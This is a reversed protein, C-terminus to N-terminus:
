SFIWGARESGLCEFSIEKIIGQDCIMSVASYYPADNRILVYGTCGDDRINCAYLLENGRFMATGDKSVSAFEPFGNLIDSEASGVHVNGPLTINVYSGQTDILATLVAESMSIPYGSMNTVGAMEKYLANEFYYYQTNVIETWAGGGVMDAESKFDYPITLERNLPLDNEALDGVATPFQYVHGNLAYQFTGMDSSMMAGDQGQSGDAPVLGNGPTESEGTIVGDGATGSQDPIVSDDSANTEGSVLGSDPMETEGGILGSEETETEGTIVRETEGLRGRETERSGTDTVPTETQQETPAETAQQETSVITEEQGGSAETSATESEQTAVIEGRHAEADAIQQADGVEASGVVQDYMPFYDYSSQQGQMLEISYIVQDYAFCITECSFQNAGVSMTFEIRRAPLDAATADSSTLQTTVSMDAINKEYSDFAANADNGEMPFYSISLTGASPSIAGSDNVPSYSILTKGPANNNGWNGPVDVLVSQQLIERIFQAAQYIPLGSLPRDPTQQVTTEAVTETEPETMVAQTETETEPVAETVVDTPTNTESIGTDEQNEATEATDDAAGNGDATQDAGATESPATDDAAVSELLVTVSTADANGAELLYIISQLTAAAPDDADLTDLCGQLLIKITGENETFNQKTLTMAADLQARASDPIAQVSMSSSMGLAAALLVAVIKKKM